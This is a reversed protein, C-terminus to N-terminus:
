RTVLTVLAHAIRAAKREAIRLGTNRRIKVPPILHKKTMIQSRTQQKM